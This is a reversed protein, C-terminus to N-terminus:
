YERSEAAIDGDDQLKVRVHVGSEGTKQSQMGALTRAVRGQAFLFVANPLGQVPRIQEDSNPLHRMHKRAVAHLSAVMHHDDARVPRIQVRAHQCTSPPM